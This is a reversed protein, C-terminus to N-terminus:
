SQKSVIEHNVNYAISLVLCLYKLWIAIFCLVLIEDNTWHLKEGSKGLFHAIANVSWYFKRIKHFQHERLIYFIGSVFNTLSIKGQETMQDICTKFQDVGM